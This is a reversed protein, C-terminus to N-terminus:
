SIATTKVGVTRHIDRFTDLWSQQSYWVDGRDEVRALGHSALLKRAASEFVGAGKVVALITQGNVEIGGEFPVFQAM